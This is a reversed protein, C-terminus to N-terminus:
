EHHMSIQAVNLRTASIIVMSFQQKYTPVPLLFILVIFDKM